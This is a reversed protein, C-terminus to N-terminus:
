KSHETIYFFALCLMIAKINVQIFYGLSIFSRSTSKHSRWCAPIISLISTSSVDGIVNM